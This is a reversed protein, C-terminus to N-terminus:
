SLTKLCNIIGSIDEKYSWKNILERSLQGFEIRKTEDTMLIKLYGSLSKINGIPFIYGNVGDKILDRAAGVKDSVVIPLGLCMAENVVLGWPEFRSPLVFIDAMSYIEPLETQNRFGMFYTNKIQKELVYQELDKRLEGDGVFILSCEVEKSILEFAKLLDYPRKQEILKGSFLIVPLDASISYKKKLNKKGPNLENAKSIFFDNNVTYPVSFIKEESAGYTKYFVENATGISLFVRIKKFLNSLILKKFNNKLGTSENLLNTEGRLLVPIKFQFAALMAIWNTVSNWGHIWIADYSGNKLESIIEPNVQGFFKSPNPSPSINKLFKYNYGDLLPIDWKVSQGFNEDFYTKLGWESCYLVTLDINAENSLLKFLPAQYQIPHSILVALKYKKLM